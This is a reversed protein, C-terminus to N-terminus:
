DFQLGVDLRYTRASTGFLMDEQESESYGAALKKFANWLVTYSLSLRDVPFNSEFMCRAPSFQEIAFHYYRAYTEVFRDSSPPAPGREWEFGNWPMAMGGLKLVVNPCTAVDAMLRRWEVFAEERKGAFRGEALPSGMHDLVITTDPFARALSAVSPLQPHYQHADFSLGRKAVEAFGERFTKEGYLDPGTADEVRAIAPDADWIGMDRIGRFLESAELHADLTEGALTGLSLRAAGVIGGIRVSGPGAEKAVSAQRDIWETEGVPKLHDPGEQRLAEGCQVFVTQTINHDRTDNQLNTLRYHPFVESEEFFHFHPDIIPREPDIAEEQTLSLWDPRFAMASASKEKADERMDTETM